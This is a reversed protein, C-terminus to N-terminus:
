KQGGSTTGPNWLRQAISGGSLLRLAERMKEGDQRALELEVTTEGAKLVFNRETRSLQEVVVSTIVPDGTRLAVLLGAFRGEVNTLENQYYKILDLSSRYLRLFFFAFAGLFLSLSVRMAQVIASNQWVRSPLRRGTKISEVTSRVGEVARIQSEFDLVSWLLVALGVGGIVVGLALNFRGRRSLDLIEKELRARTQNLWTEIQQENGGLRPRNGNERPDRGDTHAGTDSAARSSLAPPDLVLEVNASPGDNLSVNLTPPPKDNATSETLGPARPEQAFPPSATPSDGDLLFRNIGYIAVAALVVVTVVTIFITIRTSAEPGAVLALVMM